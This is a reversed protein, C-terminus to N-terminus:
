QAPITRFEDEGRARGAEVVVRYLKGPELVEPRSNTKADKMGQIRMGYIFGNIPVSNSSSVLHWAPIAYKNTRYAEAPVVKISTLRYKDDLQFTVAQVKTPRNRQRMARQPAVPRSKAMIQIVPPHILDTFNNVYIGALILALCILAIAKKTM